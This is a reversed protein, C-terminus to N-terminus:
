ATQSGTSGGSDVTVMTEALGVVVIMVSMMEKEVVVMQGEVVGEERLAPGAEDGVM